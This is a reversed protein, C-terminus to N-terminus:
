GHGSGLRMIRGAAPTAVVGGLAGTIYELLLDAARTGKTAATCAPAAEPVKYGDGGECAPYVDFAVRVTEAAGLPRGDVRMVDGVVRSGSPRSPDYRFSIGSVQLFAGHGYSGDAVSHELLERVRAGTVPFAIIPTDDAFLFISELQYKSIPGAALVDDIRLTGSNMLAVDAHTGARMADTVLDGLASERYRSVADRGEIPAPATGVVRDPGLRRALSDSWARAVRAVAADDPLGRDIRMLTTTTRWHDGDRSLEAFQATRVNADAKVVFRGGVDVKHFEHEHGGLIIDIGPERVLLASDAELNQHTLGVVLNAGAARLAAVARHAASDPDTCRVFRRYDGLLTLGFVGIRVGRVTVTDWPVVGPFASGDATTCNSAIWRFRSAAIRAVLTDRDLEFEHNGFTAYDLRAANFADVMQRGAYWKSLLSPSLVDGALMFLVPGDAALRDRLAAVRAIGGSGDRLTDAVYVDNVLLIRVPASASSPVALTGRSGATTCGALLGAFCALAHRLSPRSM